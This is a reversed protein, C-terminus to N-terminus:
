KLKSIVDSTVDVGGFIINTRDLVLTLHKQKAVDAMASRTKDVFPTLTNKQKDDLAAQYAKLIQTRDADSKAAKLKDAVTRDQDAKFKSFEDTASRLAPIADIQAHDVFGVTSPPPSSVPPVPDAVGTLLDRVNATVDVGGYIVIRKDVIVSLNKSSAVSAIAVQAKGMIPGLVTRQEDAMKAQFEAALKQQDAASANRAREVYQAQLASGYTSITQNAARFAPLDALQTQDIVGIDVVDTAIAAPALLSTLVLMAAVAHISRLSVRM